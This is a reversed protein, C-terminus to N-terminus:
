INTDCCIEHMDSATCGRVGWYLRGGWEMGAEGLRVAQASAHAAMEGGNRARRLGGVSRKQFDLPTAPVLIVVRLLQANCVMCTKHSEPKLPLQPARVTNVTDQRTRAQRHESPRKRTQM